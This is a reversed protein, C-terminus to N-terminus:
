DEVITFQGGISKFDEFFRPYSKNVAEAHKITVQKKCRISAIALAMVIRHDNFSDFVGGEFEQQGEIILGDDLLQTSVGLGKLTHEISSLRNSEKYKLRGANVIRSTGQSAAALIALIPAIDPSQSVDYVVGTTQSQHFTLGEPGTSYHGGSALICDLIRYDPQLSDLEINKCLIDNGILGAVAFFALQSFDGEIKLSLPRYSQNGKIEYVDNHEHVVIGSKRLIDCTMDVYGKSEYKGTVRIRSDEKALPLAFLLGSIFQSSINGPIDYHGGPLGGSIILTDENKQYQLGLNRFLSEYIGLPRQFLSKKGTFVVKQRSLTMIPILLRLTSGSENCDIFNDDTIVIRGTANVILQNPNQICKAGIKEMAAITALVDESYAMNSLISKGRALSAAIITRHSQSKSPPIKISGKLSQPHIIINM